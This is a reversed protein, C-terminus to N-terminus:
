ATQAESHRDNQQSLPTLADGIVQQIEKVLADMEKKHLVYLGHGFEHFHLPQYLLGRQELSPFFYVPAVAMFPWVAVDGDAFAAPLANTETHAQHMWNIIKLCLQDGDGGRVVPSALRSSLLRLYYVAVRTKSLVDELLSDSNFGLLTLNTEAEGRFMLCMNIMKRSYPELLVPIAAKTLASELATCDRALAANRQRLANRLTAAEAQNM